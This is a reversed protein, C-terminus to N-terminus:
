ELPKVVQFPKYIGADKEEGKDTYMVCALRGDELINKIFMVRNAPEYVVKDGVEYKLSGSQVKDNRSKALEEAKKEGETPFVSRMREKIDRVDDCMRWVKFFLVISLVGFVIVLLYYLLNDM